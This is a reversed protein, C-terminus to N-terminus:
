HDGQSRLQLVENALWKCVLQPPHAFDEGYINALDDQGVEDVIQNSVVFTFRLSHFISEHKCLLKSYDAASMPTKECSHTLVGECM